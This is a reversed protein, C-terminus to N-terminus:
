ENNVKKNRRYFNELDILDPFYLITNPELRSPYDVNNFWLLINLYELSKYYKLILYDIRKIDMESLVHPNPQRTLKLDQLNFSLIDPYFDNLSPNLQSSKVMLDYKTKNAM